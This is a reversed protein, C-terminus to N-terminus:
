SIDIVSVGIDGTRITLETITALAERLIDIGKGLHGLSSRKTCQQFMEVFQVHMKSTYLLM